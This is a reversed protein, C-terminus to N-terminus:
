QDMLRSLCQFFIRSKSFNIRLSDEEEQRRLPTPPPAPLESPCLDPQSTVVGAPWHPSLRSKAENADVVAPPQTLKM